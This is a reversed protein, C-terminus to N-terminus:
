SDCTEFPIKCFRDLAERLYEKNGKSLWLPAVAQSEDTVDNDVVQDKIKEGEIPNRLDLVM